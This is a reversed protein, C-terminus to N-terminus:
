KYRGLVARGAEYAQKGRDYYEQGKKMVEEGKSIGKSIVDKAKGEPLFKTVKKSIDFVKPAVEVVKKVVHKGKGFLTKAGRWLKGAFRAFGGLRM